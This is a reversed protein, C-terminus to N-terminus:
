PSKTFGSSGHGIKQTNPLSVISGDKLTVDAFAAAYFVKDKRRNFAGILNEMYGGSLPNALVKPEDARDVPKADYYDKMLAIRATHNADTWVTDGHRTTNEPTDDFNDLLNVTFSEGTITGRDTGLSFLRSEKQQSRLRITDDWQQVFAQTIQTM